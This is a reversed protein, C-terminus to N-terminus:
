TEISWSITVQVEVIQTPWTPGQEVEIGRDCFLFHMLYNQFVWLLLGRARISENPYEKSDALISYFFIDHPCDLVEEGHIM